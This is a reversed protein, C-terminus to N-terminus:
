LCAWLSLFIATNHLCSIYQLKLSYLDKTFKWSNDCCAGFLSQWRMETREADCSWGLASWLDVHVSLFFPNVLEGDLRNEVSITYIPRAMLMILRAKVMARPPDQLAKWERMFGVKWLLHLHGQAPWSFCTGFSNGVVKELLWKAKGLALPSFLMSPLMGSAALKRESTFLMEKWSWMEPCWLNLTSRDLNYWAIDWGLRLM